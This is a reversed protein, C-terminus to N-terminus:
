RQIIDDDFDEGEEEDDILRSSGESQNAKPQTETTAAPVLDDGDLGSLGSIRMKLDSPNASIKLAEDITIVQEKVLGELNQNLTQMKYYSNSQAMAQPIRQIDGDNIYKQIAPSNIMVEAAAIRGSGDARMLLTQSVVGVLTNALQIRVQNQQDGPFVDLIREVTSVANKTHLTSLVLHGTEAATLAVQITTPDRLEGVMIVDPDQRLGAYLADSMSHCDTGLERQTISAKIDRHVFEIPDEITLVHVPRHENIYRVMAAMTTSKGTGTPGTILILGRPRHCLEKLVSPLSLDDFQPIEFPIMRIVASVSGRQYFVSGRFRGLSPMKFSIDVNLKEELQVLQRETLIGFIITQVQRTSLHPMKAPILRGNIRYLPPRGPKIHLDSAGYKLLARILYRMDLKNRKGATGTSTRTSTQGGVASLAANGEEPYYEEQKLKRDHRSSKGDSM